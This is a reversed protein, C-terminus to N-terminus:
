GAGAPFGSDDFYGASGAQALGILPVLRLSLRPGGNGAAVLSVFEELTAGTAQLVKAIRETSPWRLKGHTVERNSKNFTTSDLGAIKALGSASLSHREALADLARWIQKHTLM